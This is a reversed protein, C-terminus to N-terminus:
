GLMLLMVVFLLAAGICILVNVPLLWVAFIVLLVFILCGVNDGIDIYKM